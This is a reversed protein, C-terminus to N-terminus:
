EDKQDFSRESGTQNIQQYIFDWSDRNKNNSAITTINTTTPTTVAATYTVPSAPTKSLLLPSSPLSSQEKDLLTNFGIGRSSVTPSTPSRTLKSQVASHSSIIESQYNVSYISGPKIPPITPTPAGSSNPSYEPMESERSARRDFQISASDAGHDSSLETASYHSRRPDEVELRQMGDVLAANADLMASPSKINSPAAEARKPRPSIRQTYVIPLKKEILMHKAYARRKEGLRSLPLGNSALFVVRDLILQHADLVASVMSPITSLADQDTKANVLKVIAVLDQNELKLVICGNELINPHSREITAEVDVPFYCLGRMDFTGEMPGLYYLFQEIVGTNKANADPYLFGLDGTRTYTLRPDGDEIRADFMAAEYQAEPGAFGIGNCASAVWIEGVECPPCLRFSVPNVIAIMTNRPVKGADHLLISPATDSDDLVTIKGHRLSKLDLVVPQPPSQLYARSSIMPNIAPGYVTTIAIDDLRNALFFQVLSSYHEPQPRGDCALMMCKVNQLSYLRYDVNQVNNMAHKMMPYTVYVDKSKYHHLVEFYIQPNAFLDSPTIMLTQCGVYMGLMCSHLFGLGNYSRVCSILPRSPVLLCDLRQVRCQAVLAAHSLRVATRRCDADYYVQIMATHEPQLWREDLRFSGDSGLLPDKKSSSVKGLNILSPIRDTSEGKARLAQQFAKSRLTEETNANVLVGRIQFDDVLALLSALDEDLRELDPQAVPIAVLGLVLCAHVAAVFDLGHPLILLVHDGPRLGRKDVLHHAISSVRASLKRFTLTKSERGRGDLLTYASDDGCVSARWILIDTISRFRDMDMGTRDDFVQAEPAIGTHQPKGNRFPSEPIDEEGFAPLPKISEALQMSVHAFDLKGNQFDRRCAERNIDNKGNRHTRPLVGPASICVCYPQLKHYNKMAVNVLRVIDPMDDPRAKSELLVVTLFDNNEFIDFIACSIVGDVRAMITYTLDPSFHLRMGPEILDGEPMDSSVADKTTDNDSDENLEDLAIVQHVQDEYFGFLVLEGEVLCGLLGTRLFEQELQESYGPRNVDYLLPRARFISQTQKKLGWFGGSLAPSDVWIEGVTNPPCLAKKEPNVVCVTVQPMPPGFTAVEVISTRDNALADERSVVHVRRRKLHERDLLLTRQPPIVNDSISDRVGLLMGGHETLSCVPAIADRAARNGLPYLLCDVINKDLEPDPLLTDIFLRRLPSLDPAVKKVYTLTQQPERVFSSLVHQIGAYDVIGITVRLRTMVHPWLGDVDTISAPGYITIHGCYIGALAAFILGMQQRPEVVTFLVDNPSGAGTGTSLLSKVAICQSVITRHSIGVGKLEGTSNKSFELYALDTGGPMPISDDNNKKKNINATGLDNTKWWDVGAPWDERRAQLDKTLAKINTDTSLVLTISTQALITRLEKLSDLTIIPVAVMSALFCGYLAALFDLVESRRYVLGVKAGKSSGPRSRLLQAVKEARSYLKEWTLSNIEKGKPDIQICAITNKPLITARHRLIAPLTGFSSLPTGTYRDVQDAIPERPRQPFAQKGAYPHIEAATSYLGDDIAWPAKAISPSYTSEAYGYDDEYQQSQSPHISPDRPSPIAEMPHVNRSFNSMSTFTASSSNSDIRQHQQAYPPNPPHPYGNGGPPGYHGHQQYQQQHPPPPHNGYPRPSTPGPGYGGNNPPPHQSLHQQQPYISGARGVPPGQRSQDLSARGYPYPNGIPPPPPLPSHPNGNNGIRYENSTSRSLSAPDLTRVSSVSRMSSNSPTRRHLRPAGHGGPPLPPTVPRPSTSRPALAGYGSGSPMNPPETRLMPNPRPGQPGGYGPIAPNSQINPNPLNNARDADIHMYPRNMSPQQTSGDMTPTNPYGRNHQPHGGPYHGGPPLQHPPGSPPPPGRQQYPYRQQLHQPHQQQPHQQLHQQPPPPLPPRGTDGTHMPRDLPATMHRTPPHARRYDPTTDALSASRDLTSSGVGAGIGGDSGIASLLAIRRKEYGKQTIDGERYERELANLQEQLDSPLM